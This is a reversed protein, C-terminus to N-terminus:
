ITKIEKDLININRKLRFNNIYSLYMKYKDDKNISYCNDCMGNNKTRDVSEHLKGCISCIDNKNVFDDNVFDGFSDCIVGDDDLFPYEDFDDDEFTDNKSISNSTLIKYIINVNKKREKKMDIVNSDSDNHDNNSDIMISIPNPIYMNKDFFLDTMDNSLECWKPISIHDFVTGYSNYNIVFRDVVNTAREKDSFMRCTCTLIDKNFRMLPCNNCGDVLLILKNSNYKTRLYKLM